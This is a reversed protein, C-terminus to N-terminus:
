LGRTLRFGTLTTPTLTGTNALSDGTADVTLVDVGTGGDITLPAGIGNVTGGIAPAASSVIITDDGGEANVTTAGAITQVNIADAGGGANLTTTGAHTSAITFTDGGSGLNVNVSELTARFLASSPFLATRTPPPLM